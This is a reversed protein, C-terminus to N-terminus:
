SKAITMPDFRAAELAIKSTTDTVESSAGGMVGALALASSKDAVVLDTPDLNRKQNDLTTITKTDGARRMVLATDIKE